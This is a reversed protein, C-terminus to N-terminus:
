QQEEECLKVGRILVRFKDEATLVYGCAGTMTGDQATDVTCEDCYESIGPCRIDRNDNM